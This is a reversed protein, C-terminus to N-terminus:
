QGTANIEKILTDRKEKMKSSSVCGSDNSSSSNDSPKGTFYSQVLEKNMVAYVFIFIVLVCVIYEFKM